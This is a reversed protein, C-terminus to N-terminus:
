ASQGDDAPVPFRIIATTGEGAELTFTGQLSVEVLSRVLRLGLRDSRDSVGPPLRVGNDRIRIIVEPGVAEASVEVTGMHGDPFAHKAINTFLENTIIGLATLTKSPLRLPHKELRFEVRGSPPGQLFTQEALRRVLAEYQGAQFGAGGLVNHILALGKVRGIAEELVTGAMRGASTTRQLEMFSVILALNNRVRHNLEDLLLGKVRAEQAAQRYLDANDAALRKLEEEAQRRETVDLMMCVAQRIGNAEPFPVANVLLSRQRGDPLRLIMEKEKTAEGRWIARQL